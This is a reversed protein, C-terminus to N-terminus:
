RPKERHSVFSIIDGANIKFDGSPIYVNNEREVACVLLNSFINQSLNAVTIGDLINHAPVKFKILEAECHAFTNIELATPLYLMRATEKDAELEPNIIQAHGLKERLYSVEKSYDPNRVRAIAACNGVQTAITCCLLNLEDSNTVAIILDTDEIGAEMQVSYSAGNGIIGMVDHLNTTEQVRVANTDIITIDHGEKSLQETLTRGVKGCGVIIIRLGTKDNAKHEFM